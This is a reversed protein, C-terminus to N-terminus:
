EINILSKLSKDTIPYVKSQKYFKGYWKKIGTLPELAHLVEILRTSFNKDRHFEVFVVYYDEDTPSISVDTDIISVPSKQIFTNLDRAPERDSIYFAVVIASADEFKSNYEDVSILPVVLGELDNERLGETLKM